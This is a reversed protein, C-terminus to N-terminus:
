DAQVLLGFGFLPRSDVVAGSQCSPGNIQKVKINQLLQMAANM